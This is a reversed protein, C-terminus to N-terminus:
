WVKAPSQGSGIGWTVGSSRLVPGGSIHLSGREQTSHTSPFRSPESPWPPSVRVDQSCHSAPPGRAVWGWGTGGEGGPVKNAEDDLKLEVLCQTLCSAVLAGQVLTVDVLGLLCPLAQRSDKGAKKQSNKVRQSRLRSPGQPARRCVSSKPPEPQSGGPPAQAM